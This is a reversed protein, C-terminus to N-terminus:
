ENNLCYTGADECWRWSETYGKFEPNDIESETIDIEDYYGAEEGDYPGGSLVYGKAAELTSFVALHCGFEYNVQGTVSYIRM